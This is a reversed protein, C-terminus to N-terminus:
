KVIDASKSPAWEIGKEKLWDYVFYNLFEVWIPLTDKMRKGCPQDMCLWCKKLVEILSNGYIKPAGRKGKPGSKRKIGLIVKNAHKRDWGTIKVFEDLLKSKAKRGTMRSYRERMKVTYEQISLESM